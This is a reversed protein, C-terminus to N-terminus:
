VTPPLGRKILEKDTQYRVYVKTANAANSISDMISNKSMKFRLFIYFFSSYRFLNKIKIDIPIQKIM